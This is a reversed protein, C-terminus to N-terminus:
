EIYSISISFECSEGDYWDSVMIYIDYDGVVREFYMYGWDASSDDIEYLGTNTFYEVLAQYPNNSEIIMFYMFFGSTDYDEFEYSAPDHFYECAFDGLVNEFGFKACLENINSVPLAEPLAEFYIYILTKEGDNSIYLSVVEGNANIEKSTATAGDEYITTDWCADQSLNTVYSACVLGDVDSCSITMSYEWGDDTVDYNWIKDESGATLTTKVFGQGNIFEAIALAIASWKQPALICQYEVVAIHNTEAIVVRMQEANDNENISTYVYVTEKGEIYITKNWESLKTDMQAVLKDALSPNSEDPEVVSDYAAIGVYPNSTSTSFDAVYALDFTFTPIEVPLEGKFLANIANVPYESMPKNGTDVSIVFCGYDNDYFEVEIILDSDLVCDKSLAFGCFLEEYNRNVVYNNKNVMADFKEYPDIDLDYSYSIIKYNLIEILESNILTISVMLMWENELEGLIAVISFDSTSGKYSLTTKYGTFGLTSSIDEWSGVVALQGFSLLLEANSRAEEKTSPFYIALEDAEIECQVGEEVYMDRLERKLDGAPDTINADVIFTNAITSLSADEKVLDKNAGLEYVGTALLSTADEANYAQEVYYYFELCPKYGFLATALSDEEVYVFEMAVLKNNTDNPKAFLLGNLVGFSYGSDDLSLLAWNGSEYIEYELQEKFVSTIVKGSDDEVQATLHVARENGEGVVSYETTAEDLKLWTDISEIPADAGMSILLNKADQCNFQHPVNQSENNGCGALGVLMMSAVIIGKTLKKM